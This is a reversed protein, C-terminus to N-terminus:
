GSEREGRGSRPGKGDDLLFAEMKLSADRQMGPVAHSYLDMTMALTAHGLRSQVVKPHVGQALALTASTHRLGHFSLVPLGEARLVRKLRKNLGTPERLRGSAGCFVLGNDQWAAGAKLREEAQKARHQRLVRALDPGFEVLRASAKTKPPKTFLGGKTRAQTRQVSLAGVELDLDSWKLGLLEGIRLGTTMAVVVLAYLSGGATARVLAAAETPLLVKRETGGPEPLVAKTAPNFALLRWHVATKLAGHIVTRLCRVTAPSLGEAHKRSYFAEVVSLDVKSLLLHGLAPKVHLRLDSEYRAATTPSGRGAVRDRFWRDLLDGFTMRAPQVYSGTEIQRIWERLVSEAEKKAGHVTRSQYKRKGDVEGLYVRLLFTRDARRTIQGKV